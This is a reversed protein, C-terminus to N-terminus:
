LTIEALCQDFLRIHPPIHPTPVAFIFAKDADRTKVVVSQIPLHVSFSYSTNPHSHIGEALATREPVAAAPGLAATTSISGEFPLPM